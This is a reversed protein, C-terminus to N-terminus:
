IFSEEFIIKLNPNLYLKKKKIDLQKQTKMIARESAIASAVSDCMFRILDQKDMDYEKHLYELGKWFSIARESDITIQLNTEQIFRFGVHGM